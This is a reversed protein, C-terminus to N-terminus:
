GGRNEFYFVVSKGMMTDALASFPRLYLPNKMIEVELLKKYARVILPKDNDVGLMCRLWWYPTHLGHALHRHYLRLGAREFDAQLEDARFIRVHGGATNHYDRSLWWCIQETWRHPVSVGIRGNPKVVRKMEDIAALYDPIHELVESCIVRDFCNDAFPLQLADGVVVGYRAADANLLDRWGNRTAQVDDFGLDLGIVRTDGHMYAAHCHRGRGCGIDLLSHGDRLTLANFDITQM